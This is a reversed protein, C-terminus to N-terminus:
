WSMNAAIVYAGGGGGGGGRGKEVVFFFIGLSVYGGALSGHEGYATEGFAGV